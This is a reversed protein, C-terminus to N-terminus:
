APGAVANLLRPLVVRYSFVREATERAARCHAAYDSHAQELCQAAEELSSFAFVGGEAPLWDRFGTDQLVVPRGAALYCVTRDSFWGSKTVVYGQKAVSFEGRSGAVYSTYVRADTSVEGGTRISWGAARLRELVDPAAGSLALELRQSTRGPLDLLRMFEEDKQGYRRGQYTVAGYASWNAVTTFAADAAPPASEWVDPVVPPVTPLWEVGATPVDCGPRGINGGYTFHVDHEELPVAGFRRVQTFFPDMDVLARCRCLSFEPLWCVGGLNLLLDTDALFRKVEDWDGGELKGSDRNVYWVPIRMDHSSMLSRAFALGARPDDGMEREIPNYCSSPWGSEELYAVDHGLRKLGLVYHFYAFAMGALPYRVMYGSVVIRM